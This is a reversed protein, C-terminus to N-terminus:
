RGERAPSGGTIRAPHFTKYTSWKTKGWARRLSKRGGPFLRNATNCQYFTFYESTQKIETALYSLSSQSRDENQQHSFPFPNPFPRSTYRHQICFQTVETLHIRRPIYKCFRQRVTCVFLHFKM